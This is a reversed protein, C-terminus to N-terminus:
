MQLLLMEDPGMLINKWKTIPRVSDGLNHTAINKLEVSWGEKARM